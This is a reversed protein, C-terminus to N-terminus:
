VRAGHAQRLQRANTLWRELEQIVGENSPSAEGSIEDLVAM